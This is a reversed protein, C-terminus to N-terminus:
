KKKYMEKYERNIDAIKSSLRHPYKEYGFTEMGHESKTITEDFKFNVSKSRLKEEPLHRIFDFKPAEKKALEWYIFKPKPGKQYNTPM